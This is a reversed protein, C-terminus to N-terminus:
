AELSESAMLMWLKQPLIAHLPLYMSLGSPDTEAHRPFHGVFTVKKLFQIFQYPTWQSSLAQGHFYALNM